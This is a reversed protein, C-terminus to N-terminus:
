TALIFGDAYYLGGPISWIDYFAGMSDADDIHVLSILVEDYIDLRKLLRQWNRQEAYFANRKEHFSQIAQQYQELEPYEAFLAAEEEQFQQALREGYVSTDSLFYRPFDTLVAGVLGASLLLRDGVQLQRAELIKLVGQRHALLRQQSLCNLTHVSGGSDSQTELRLYQQHFGSFVVREPQSDGYPTQIAANLLSDPVEYIDLMALPLAQYGQNKKVHVLHDGLIAMYIGELSDILFFLIVPLNKRKQQSSRLM